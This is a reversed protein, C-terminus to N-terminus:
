VLVPKLSEVGCVFDLVWRCPKMVFGRFGLYVLVSLYYNINNLCLRRVAFLMIMISAAVLLLHVVRRNTKSRTLRRAVSSRCTLVTWRELLPFDVVYTIRAFVWGLQKGDESIVLMNQECSTNLFWITSYLHALYRFFKSLKQFLIDVFRQFVFVPIHDFGVKQM